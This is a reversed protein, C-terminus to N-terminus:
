TNHFREPLATRPNQGPLAWVWVSGRSAAGSGSGAGGVSPDCYRHKGLGLERRAAALVGKPHGAAPGDRLADRALRPGDALYRRVWEKAEERRSSAPGPRDLRPPDYAVRGDSLRFPVADGLPGLNTKAPRILGGGAVAPDREVSLATRAVASHAASGAPAAWRGGRKALHTVAVIAAGSDRALDALPDLVARVVREHRRDSRPTFAALPDIVILGVPRGAARQLDLKARLRALDDALDYTRRLPAADADPGGDPTRATTAVSGALEVRTLDAGAAELRPRVTDAPHDEGCFLLM